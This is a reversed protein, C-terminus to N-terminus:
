RRRTPGCDRCVLCSSVTTIVATAVLAFTLAALVSAVLGKKIKIQEMASDGERGIWVIREPKKKITPL